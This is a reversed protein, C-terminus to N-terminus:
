KKGKCIPCIKFELSAGSNRRVYSPFDMWFRDGGDVKNCVSCFCINGKFAELERQARDAGRKFHHFSAAVFAYIAFRSIVNVIVVWSASFVPGPTGEAWTSFVSFVVAAVVGAVVGIRWTGFAVVCAYLAILKVEYGTIYDLVCVAPVFM